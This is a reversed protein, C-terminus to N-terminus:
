RCAAGTDTCLILARSVYRGKKSWYGYVVDRGVKQLLRERSYELREKVPFSDADLPPHNNLEQELWGLAADIDQEGYVRKPMRRLWDKIEIPPYTPPALGKRIEGDTHGQGTYSYAHFHATVAAAYPSTPM